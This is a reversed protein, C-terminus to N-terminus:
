IAVLSSSCSCVCSLLLRVCACPQRRDKPAFVHAPAAPWRGIWLADQEAPIAAFSLARCMRAPRVVRMGQDLAVGFPNCSTPLCPLLLVAAPPPSISSWRRGQSEFGSCGAPWWFPRAPRRVLSPLVLTFSRNVIVRLRFRPPPPPSRGIGGGLLLALSGLGFLLTHTPPFSFNPSRVPSPHVAILQGFPGSIM